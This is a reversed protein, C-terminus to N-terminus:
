WPLRVKENKPAYKLDDENRPDDKNKLDAEFIPNDENKPEYANQAKRWKQTTKIKQNDERKPTTKM